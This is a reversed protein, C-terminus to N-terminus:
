DSGPVYSTPALPIRTRGPKLPIYGRCRGRVLVALRGRRSVLHKPDEPWQSLHGRSRWGQARHRHSHAWAMRWSTQRGIALTSCSWTGSGSSSARIAMWIHLGQVWRRFVGAGADWRWSVVSPLSYPINVVSVPEGALPSAAFTFGRLPTPRELGLERMRQRVTAISVFLNHPSPRDVVQYFLDGESGEHILDFDGKNMLQTGGISVGSYVMVGGTARLLEVNMPRVSRVPGARDSEHQLYIATLRTIWWADMLDEVVVKAQSLGSPLPRGITEM